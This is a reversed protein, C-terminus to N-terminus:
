KKLYAEPNIKKIESILGELDRPSIILKDDNRFTVQIRDLSLAPAALINKSKSIERIENIELYSKLFLNSIILQNDKIIYYTGTYCLYIIASYIVTLSLAGYNIKNSSIFQNISIIVWYCPFSLIFALLTYDIKSKFKM